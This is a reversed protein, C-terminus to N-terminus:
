LNERFRNRIIFDYVNFTKPLFFQARNWKSHVVVLVVGKPAVRATARMCPAGLDDRGVNRLAPDGSGAANYPGAIRGGKTAQPSM